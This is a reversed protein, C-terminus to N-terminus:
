TIYKWTLDARAILKFKLKSLEEARKESIRLGTPMEHLFIARRVKFESSHVTLDYFDSRKEMTSNRRRGADNPAFYNNRAREIPQLKVSSKDIPEPQDGTRSAGFRHGVMLPNSALTRCLTSIFHELTNVIV